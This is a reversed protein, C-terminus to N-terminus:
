KTRPLADAKKSFPNTIKKEKYHEQFVTLIEGRTLPNHVSPPLVVNDALDKEINSSLFTSRGGGVRTIPTRQKRSTFQPKNFQRSAAYISTGTSVGGMVLIVVVDRPYKANTKKVYKQPM